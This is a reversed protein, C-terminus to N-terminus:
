AGERSTKSPSEASYCHIPLLIFRDGYFVSSPKEGKGGKKRVKAPARGEKEEKKGGGKFSSDENSPLLNNVGSEESFSAEKGRITMVVARAALLHDDRRKREKTRGM